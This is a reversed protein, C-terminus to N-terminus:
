RVSDWLDFGPVSEIVRKAAVGAAHGDENSLGCGRRHGPQKKNRIDRAHSRRLEHLGFNMRDHFGDDGNGDGSDGHQSNGRLRFGAGVMVGAANIYAAIEWTARRNVALTVEHSIVMAAARDPSGAGDAVMVPGSWTGAIRGRAGRRIATAITPAAM